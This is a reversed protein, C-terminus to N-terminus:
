LALRIIGPRNNLSIGSRGMDSYTKVIEFGHRRAYNRITEAQNEPTYQQEETSVRLYQAVPATM